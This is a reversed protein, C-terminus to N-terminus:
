TSVAAPQAYISPCGSPALGHRVAIGFAPRFIVHCREAGANSSLSVSFLLIM